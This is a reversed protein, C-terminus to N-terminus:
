GFINDTDIQNDDVKAEEMCSLIRIRGGRTEYMLLRKYWLKFM